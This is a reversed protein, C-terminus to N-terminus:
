SAAGIPLGILLSFGMAVFGVLLSIRAGHILRSMLSRGFADTGLPHQWSPPQWVQEYDQNDYGEPALVDAFIAMLVLLVIIFLAVMSLRNRSFRRAADVWLNRQKVPKILGSAPAAQKAQKAGNPENVLTAM